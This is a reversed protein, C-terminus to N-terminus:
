EVVLIAYVAFPPVEVVAQKGDIRPTLARESNEPTLVRVSRVPQSMASIGVRLTRTQRPAAYNVLHVARGGASPQCVNLAVTTDPDILRASFRGTGTDSVADAITKWASPLKAFVGWGRDTKVIECTKLRRVHPGSVDALRNKELLRGEDDYAGNEGLLV